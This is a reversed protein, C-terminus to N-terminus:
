MVSCRHNNRGSGNLKVNKRRRYSENTPRPSRSPSRPRPSPSRPSPLPSKPSPPQPIPGGGGSDDNSTSVASMNRGYITVFGLSSECPYGFWQGNLTVIYLGTKVFFNPRCNPMDASLSVSGEYFLGDYQSNTGSIQCIIKYDNNRIFEMFPIDPVLYIAPVKTVNNGSLVDWRQIPYSM